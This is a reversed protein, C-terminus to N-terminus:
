DALQLRLHFLQAQVLAHQHSVRCRRGDLRRLEGCHVSRGNSCNLLVGCGRRAISLVVRAIVVPLGLQLRAPHIHLHTEGVPVRSPTHVREGAGWADGRSPLTRHLPTRTRRSGEAAGSNELESWVGRRTRRRACISFSETVRCAVSASTPGCCPTDTCWCASGACPEERGALPAVCACAPLSSVVPDADCGALSTHATWNAGL